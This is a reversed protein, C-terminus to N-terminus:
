LILIKKQGKLGNFGFRLGFRLAGVRVAGASDDFLLAARGKALGLRVAREATIQRTFLIRPGRLNRKAALHELPKASLQKFVEYECSTRRERLTDQAAGMKM